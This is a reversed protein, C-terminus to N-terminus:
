TSEEGSPISIRGVWVDGRTVKRRENPVSKQGGNKLGKVAYPDTCKIVFHTRCVALEPLILASTRRLNLESKVVDIVDDHYLCEILSKM